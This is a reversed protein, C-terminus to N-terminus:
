VKAQEMLWISKDIFKWHEEIEWYPLEWEWIVKWDQVDIIKVSHANGEPERDLVVEYKNRRRHGVDVWLFRYHEDFEAVCELEWGKFNCGEGLKYNKIILM